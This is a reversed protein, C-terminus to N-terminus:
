PEYDPDEAGKYGAELGLVWSAEEILETVTGCSCLQYHSYCSQRLAAKLLAAALAHQNESIDYSHRIM